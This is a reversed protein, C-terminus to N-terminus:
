AGKRFKADQKWTIKLPLCINHAYHKNVGNRTEGSVPNLVGVTQNIMPEKRLCGGNESQAFARFECRKKLNRVVVKSGGTSFM